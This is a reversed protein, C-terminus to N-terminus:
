AAERARAFEIAQNDRLRGARLGCQFGSNYARRYVRQLIALLDERSVRRGARTLLDLDGKFAVARRRYAYTARGKRCNAVRLERPICAISAYKGHRHNVQRGCGCRCLPHTM